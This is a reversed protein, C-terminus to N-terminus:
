EEVREFGRLDDLHILTGSFMGVLVMLEWDNHEPRWRLYMWRRDDEFVSRTPDHEVRYVDGYRPKTSLDSLRAILARGKATVINM